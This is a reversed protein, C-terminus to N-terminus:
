PEAYWGTGEHAWGSRMLNNCETSSLTYHHSGTVANANYLRYLPRANDATSSKWGVGEFKWGAKVLLDREAAAATYHHDGAVPNYLRYVPTGGNLPATWGEGEYKWGSKVLADREAGSSTYFHEGSNPNYLRLMVQNNSNNTVSFTKTYGGQSRATITATGGSGGGTIRGDGNVAAVASNSSSWGYTSGLVNIQMNYRSVLKGNNKIYAKATDSKGKPLTLYGNMVSGVSNKWTPNNAGTLNYSVGMRAQMVASRSPVSNAGTAGDDGFLQVWFLSNGVQVCGLGISNWRDDMMNAFHGSSALWGKIVADVNQHNWALNEGYVKEPMVSFCDKGNPRTHDWYVTTEAARYMAAQCLDYDLNISRHGRANREANTRNLLDRVLDWRATVGVVVQDQGSPAAVAALAVPEGEEGGLLESTVGEGEQVSFAEEGEALVAPEGVMSGAVDAVFESPTEQTPELEADLAFAMTPAALLALGVGMAGLLRGIRQRTRRSHGNMPRRDKGMWDGDSPTKPAWVGKSGM